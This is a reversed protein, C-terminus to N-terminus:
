SQCWKYCRDLPTSDLEMQFLVALILCISLILFFPFPLNQVFVYSLKWLLYKNDLFLTFTFWLTRQSLRGGGGRKIFRYEIESMPVNPPIWGKRIRINKKFFIWIKVAKVTSSEDESGHMGLKWRPTFLWLEYFFTFRIAYSLHHYATFFPTKM